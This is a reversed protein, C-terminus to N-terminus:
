ENVTISGTDGPRLHNHYGWTGNSVVQIAGEEGPRLSAMNLEPNDLHIPHDDSSFQLARSSENMIRVIDGSQVTLTQPVFGSDVYTITAAADATSPAPTPNQRLIVFVGVAAGIVAATVLISIWVRKKNM